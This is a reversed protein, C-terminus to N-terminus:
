LKLNIIIKAFKFSIGYVYLLSINPPEFILTAVLLFICSLNFRNLSIQFTKTQKMTYDKSLSVM